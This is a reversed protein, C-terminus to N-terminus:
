PITMTWHRCRPRHPTSTHRRRQHPRPRIRPLPQRANWAEGRASFVQARDVLRATRPCCLILFHYPKCPPESTIVCVTKRKRCVDCPRNKRSRWQRANGFESQVKFRRRRADRTSGTTSMAQLIAASQQALFGIDHLRTRINIPHQDPVPSVQGIEPM